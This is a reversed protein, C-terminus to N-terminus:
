CGRVACNGRRSIVFPVVMLPVMQAVTAPVIDFIALLATAIAFTAILLAYVKSSMSLENQM